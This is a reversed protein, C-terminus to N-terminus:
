RTLNYAVTRIEAEKAERYKISHFQRVGKKDKRWIPGAVAVLYIGEPAPSCNPLRAPKGRNDEYWFIDGKRLFRLESTLIGQGDRYRKVRTYAKM